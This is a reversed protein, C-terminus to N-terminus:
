IGGCVEVLNTGAETVTGVARAFIAGQAALNNATTTGTSPTLGGTGSPQLPFGATDVAATM